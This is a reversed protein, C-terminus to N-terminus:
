GGFRKKSAFVGQFNLKEREKELAFVSSHSLFTQFTKSLNSMITGIGQQAVYKRSTPAGAENFTAM